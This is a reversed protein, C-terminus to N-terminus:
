SITVGDDDEYTVEFDVDTAGAGGAWTIYIDDGNEAIWLGDNNIANDATSLEDVLITMLVTETGTGAPGYSVVGSTGAPVGVNARASVGRIRARLSGTAAIDFIKAAANAATTDGAKTASLPQKAANATEGTYYGAMM